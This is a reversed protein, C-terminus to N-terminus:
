WKRHPPVGQCDRHCRDQETQYADRDPLTSHPCLKNAAPDVNQLLHRPAEVQREDVLGVRVEDVHDHGIEGRAEFRALEADPGRGFWRDLSRREVRKTSAKGVEIAMELLSGEVEETVLVEELRVTAQVNGRRQPLPV